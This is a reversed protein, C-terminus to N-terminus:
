NTPTQTHSKPVFFSEEIQISIETGVPLNIEKRNSLFVASSGIAAGILVGAAASRKIM